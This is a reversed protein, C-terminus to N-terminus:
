RGRIVRRSRISSLNSRRRAANEKTGWTPSIISSRSFFNEQKVKETRTAKVGRWLETRKREREQADRYYVEFFEILFGLRKRYARSESMVLWLDFFGEKIRYIRSRKDLPHDSATLYGARTMRQLLSSIQQPMKRLQKAINAPTRPASCMLALTELLTREQPALDKLRDQYFPSIQDLLEAM